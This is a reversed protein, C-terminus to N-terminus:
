RGLTTFHQDTFEWPTWRPRKLETWDEVGLRGREHLWAQSGSGLERPQLVLQGNYTLPSQMEMEAILM